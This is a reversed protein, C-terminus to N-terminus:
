PQAEERGNSSQSETLPSGDENKTIAPYGGLVFRFTRAGPASPAHYERVLQAVLTALDEAFANRDEASAFAIETELSLTAVRKGARDARGRLESLDAIAKSALAVLYASSLRDEIRSPDPSVDGLVKPSVVYARATAQVLREECNRKRRRSVERVLGVRELERLHYNVRQRPLDLRRALEAASAPEDAIERVLRLRAPEMLIGASELSDLQAIATTSQAAASM